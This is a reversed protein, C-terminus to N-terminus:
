KQLFVEKERTSKFKTKCYVNLIGSLIITNELVTRGLSLFILCFKSSSILLSSVESLAFYQFICVLFLNSEGIIFTGTCFLQLPSTELISM